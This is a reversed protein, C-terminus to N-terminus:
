LKFTQCLADSISEQTYERGVDFWNVYPFSRFWTRQSKALRRTNIKIQEIAYELSCKGNLYPILEAYGVAQAAQDSLGRPDALLSKMEDVLGEAVMHKVRANIRRSAEDKDRRLGVLRWPHRLQGSKFQTQFSSIPRGALEFVELARLIRKLDNSHIRGAAEPDVKSLREHLAATGIIQAENKLQQRLIADAPPGEFIGEILGRIYMATGGVAIIPCQRHQMDAIASDALEVYRGLSFSEWPEVVDILHHQITQRKELSPKATGIDMRRYVKMSDISLIEGGIKQALEFAVAGKGSATCGLILLFPSTTM